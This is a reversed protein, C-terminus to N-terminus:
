KVRGGCSPCVDVSHYGFSRDCRPCRRIRRVALAAAVALVPFLLWDVVTFPRRVFPGYGMSMSELATVGYWVVGVLGVVIWLGRARRRYAKRLDDGRNPDGRQEPGVRGTM